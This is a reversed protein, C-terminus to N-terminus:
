RRDFSFPAGFDRREDLRFYCRLILVRNRDWRQVRALANDRVRERQGELKRVGVGLRPEQVVKSTEDNVPEPDVDLTAFRM